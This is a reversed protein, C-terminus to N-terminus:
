NQTCIRHMFRSPPTASVVDTRTHHGPFLTSPLPPPPPPMRQTKQPTKHMWCNTGLFLPETRYFLFVGKDNASLYVKFKKKTQTRRWVRARESRAFVCPNLSSASFPSTHQQKKKDNFITKTSKRTKKTKKKPECLTFYRFVRSEQPRQRNHPRAPLLSTLTSTSTHTPIRGPRVAHTTM